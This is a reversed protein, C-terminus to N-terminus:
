VNVRLLVYLDVFALSSCPETWIIQYTINPCCTGKLTIVTSVIYRNTINIHTIWACQNMIMHSCCVLPFQFLENFLWMFYVIKESINCWDASVFPWSTFNSYTVSVTVEANPIQNEYLPSPCLPNFMLNQTISTKNYKTFARKLCICKLLCM